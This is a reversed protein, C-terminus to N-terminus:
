DLKVIKRNFQHSNGTELSRLQCSILYVGASVAKGQANIGDWVLDYEGAMYKGHALTQVERGKLDFITLMIEAQEPLAVPITIQPNFPNPYTQGLAFELPNKAQSMITPHRTVKGQYDVDSLCYEYIKDVQATKDTFEYKHAATTSGQGQLEPFTLYTAIEMWTSGDVLRRELMFGLNEIESETTWRLVVGTKGKEATFSSLEVHLSVDVDDQWSLYPYGDNISGMNWCDDNAVDDYPNNKFDWAATLFDVVVDTFTALTKMETTTRGTGGDSYSQGSTGIDWFCDNTSGGENYAVLGGSYDGTVSVTSTSYCHNITTRDTYAVLGGADENAEVSGRTYCNSITSSEDWGVLGGGNDAGTSVVSGIVYCNSTESALHYGVLGGVENSGTIDINTLGLNSIIAGDTYGFLGVYDTIRNITLGDITHGDGNYNGLFYLDDGDPDRGVPSFGENAGDVTADDADNYLDGDNDDDNDDWYQTQAANIDATQKFFLNQGWADSHQALNSLDSLSGIQFPDGSTGSGIFPLEAPAGGNVSAPNDLTAVQYPHSRTGEGYRPTTATPGTALITEMLILLLSLLLPVRPFVIKKM